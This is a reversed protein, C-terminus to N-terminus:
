SREDKKKPSEQRSAASHKRRRWVVIFGLAAATAPMYILVYRLVEGLSEETLSLGAPHSRQKPVSVLAPLSTLWSVANEVLLRNAILAPDRWNRSWGLSVSGFVVMRAGREKSGARPLESALGVYYPGSENENKPEFEAGRREAARIDTIAFSDQSTVLLPKAPSDDTTGLTQSGVVLLRFDVNGKSRTLGETITHERPQALFAEGRGQPLRLAPDGEIVFNNGLTVGGARAVTSLGSERLQGDDDVSPNAFLLLNGGSEFYHALASSAANALV